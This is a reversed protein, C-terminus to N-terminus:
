SIFSSNDLTYQALSPFFSLKQIKQFFVQPPILFKLFFFNIAIKERESDGPLEARDLLLAKLLMTYPIAWSDM